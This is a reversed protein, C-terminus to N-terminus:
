YLVYCLSLTFLLCIKIHKAVNEKHEEFKMFRFLIIFIVYVNNPVHWLYPEVPAIKTIRDDWHLTPTRIFSLSSYHMAM